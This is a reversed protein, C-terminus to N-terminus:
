YWATEIIIVQYDSLTVDIAKNKKSLIAKVIRTKQSEMCIQNKNIRNRKFFAITIKMPSASFKYIAKPLIATKVRSEEM